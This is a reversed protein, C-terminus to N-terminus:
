ETCLGIREVITRGASTTVAVTLYHYGVAGGEVWVSCLTDQHSQQTLVYASAPSASWAASSITEGAELCASMDVVYDLKEGLLRAPFEISM